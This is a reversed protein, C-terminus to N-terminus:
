GMFRKRAEEQTALAQMLEALVAMEKKREVPDTIGAMRGKQATIAKKLRIEVPLAGAEAMIRYGAMEGADAFAAEPHAPLPKGEGSLGELEGKAKAALIRLEALKDISM